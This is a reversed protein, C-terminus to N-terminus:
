RDNKWREVVLNMIEFISKVTLHDAMKPLVSEMRHYNTHCAKCLMLDNHRELTDFEACNDCAMYSSM